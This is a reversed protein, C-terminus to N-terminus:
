VVHVSNEEPAGTFEAKKVIDTNPARESKAKEVTFVIPALILVDMSASREMQVVDPM